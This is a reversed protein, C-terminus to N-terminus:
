AIGWSSIKRKIKEVIPIWDLSKSKTKVIPFGLYKFSNWNVAGNMNLIRSIDLMERPNINWGFIQSKRFNIKSGSAQCYRNLETKFRGAIIQSAGGMLITDDAFQAHNLDKTGRALRIGPLEQELRANELQFSLVLAQIAYLLPSLPCGQRMGRTAQFFPGARGNILPAIWPKSICAKVWSVFKPSFRFRLMVQLLFPHSVRDFANALDLKVAM